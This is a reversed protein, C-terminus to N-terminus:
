YEREWVMNAVQADNWNTRIRQGEYNVFYYSFTIDNYILSKMGYGDRFFLENGSLIWDVADSGTIHNVQTRKM